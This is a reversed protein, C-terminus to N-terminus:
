RGACAPRSDHWGTRIFGYADDTLDRVLKETSAYTYQYRGFNHILGQGWGRFELGGTFHDQGDNSISFNFIFNPQQGNPESFTNGDTSGLTNLEDVVEQRHDSRGASEDQASYTYTVNITALLAQNRIPDVPASCPEVPARRRQPPVCAIAGVLLCLALRRM